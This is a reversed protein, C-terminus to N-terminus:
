KKRTRTKKKKKKVAAKTKKKKKKKVITKKEKKAATKKVAKAKEKAKTAKKAKTKTRKKTKRKKKMHAEAERRLLGYFEYGNKSSIQKALFGGIKQETADPQVLDNERLYEAMPTTLPIAHGDLATVMCYDTAFKSVGDIAELASRAPRKGIKKIADLSAEHHENFICRLAKTITSATESTAPTDEGIMEVIEEARSVRLDNLSVFYDAFRKFAATALKESMRESLIGYVVADAPDEYTVKEVKGYKKKLSRYLKQVKKSYDQSDKM